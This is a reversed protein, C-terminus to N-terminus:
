SYINLKLQKMIQINHNDVIKYNTQKTIHKAYIDMLEPHLYVYHFSPMFDSFDISQDKLKSPSSM